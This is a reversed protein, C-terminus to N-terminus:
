DGERERKIKRGKRVGIGGEIRQDRIFERIIQRVGGHPQGSEQDFYDLWNSEGVTEMGIRVPEPLNAKKSKSM